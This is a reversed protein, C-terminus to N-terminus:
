FSFCEYRVIASREICDNDGLLLTIHVSFSVFFICTNIFYAHGFTQIITMKRSLYNHVRLGLLHSLHLLYGTDKRLRSPKSDLLWPGKRWGM